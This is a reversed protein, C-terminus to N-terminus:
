EQVGGSCAASACGWGGRQLLGVVRVAGYSCAGCSGMAHAVGRGSLYRLVSERLRVEPDGQLLAVSRNGANPGGVRRDVAREAERTAGERLSGRPSTSTSARRSSNARRRESSRCSPGRPIASSVTAAPCRSISITTRRRSYPRDHVVACEYAESARGDMSRESRVDRLRLAAGPGIEPPRVLEVRHPGAVAHCVADQAAIRWSQRGVDGVRRQALM